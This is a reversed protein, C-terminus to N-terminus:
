VELKIGSKKAILRLLTRICGTYCPHALLFPCENCYISSCDIECVKKILEKENDDFETKM